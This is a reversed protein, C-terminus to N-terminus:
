RGPTNIRRGQGAVAGMGLAEGEREERAAEILDLVAPAPMSSAPAGVESLANLAGRHTPSPARKPVPVAAHRGMTGHDELLAQEEETEPLEM